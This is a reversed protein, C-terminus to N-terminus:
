DRPGTPGTFRETTILNTVKNNFYTVKGFWAGKDAEVSFDFSKSKEPDLEPNGYINVTMPGM